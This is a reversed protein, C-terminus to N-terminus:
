FVSLGFDKLLTVVTHVSIRKTTFQQKDVTNIVEKTKSLLVDTNIKSQSIRRRLALWLVPKFISPYKASKMLYRNAVTLAAHDANEAVTPDWKNKLPNHIILLDEAFANISGAEYVELSPFIEEYGYKNAFYPNGARFFSRRLFHSGGCFMYCKRIGPAFVPGNSEVRNAQWALDFIQTTLTAIVPYRDMIEMARQFFDPAKKIDIYADDDLFYAYDGKVKSFAYNRGIGVGLNEKMKEYYYEYPHEKFFREVVDTTDDTSANDIIVFQTDSPLQCSVCSILAQMWQASRNMTIVAVSLKM